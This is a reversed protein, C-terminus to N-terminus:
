AAQFRENLATQIESFEPHDELAKHRLLFEAIVLNCNYKFDETSDVVDLVKEIPWCEFCDM